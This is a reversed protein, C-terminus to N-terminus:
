MELSLFFTYFFFLFPTSCKKVQTGSASKSSICMGANYDLSLSLSECNQFIGHIKPPTNVLNANGALIFLKVVTFNLCINLKVESTNEMHCNSILLFDECM